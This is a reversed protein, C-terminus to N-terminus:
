DAYNITEYVHIHPMSELGSTGNGLAPSLRSLSGVNTLLAANSGQTNMTPLIQLSAQSEVNKLLSAM